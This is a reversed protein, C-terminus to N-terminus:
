EPLGALRYESALKETVVNDRYCQAEIYNTVSFIPDLVKIENAINFAAAPDDLRIYASVLILRAAIDNPTLEITQKATSIAANLDNKQLYASALVNKFFPPNLPHYRMALSIYRIAEDQEGCFHLVNAYFGNANACAPRTSVAERGASLAADFEGNMLQVHSLVTQAQGDEDEMAAAKEAWRCAQKRSNELSFSWGKQVDFWHTLAIYTAGTPAEPHMKAVAEFYRRANAMEDRDMQFFASIGKYFLELSQIDKLAKHWVRAQEGAVLKINMSMLIRSVIEDQFEFIDDLTRDFKEAWVIQNGVTDTLEATVRVRNGATRVTGQLAYQVGLNKAAEAPAVGSFANASGAAILFVGSVRTLAAQVDIRLGDTLINQEDDGSMNRFPLIVISPKKPLTLDANKIQSPPVFESRWEWVKVPRPINKLEQEGLDHFEVELRDRVQRFVDDSLAICGPQALTELRAAINVGDGYVDDTEAMVEGLNVGMRFKLTQKSDEFLRDQWELACEMVRIASAFEVLYGDGLRKFIRGGHKIVVPEIIERECFKLAALTGADDKSMLRSYGVVDAALIAALRREM